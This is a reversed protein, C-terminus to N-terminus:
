AKLSLAGCSDNDRPVALTMSLAEDGVGGEGKSEGLLGTRFCGPWLNAVLRGFPWGVAVGGQTVVDESGAM